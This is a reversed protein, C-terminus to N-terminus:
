GRPCCRARTRGRPCRNSCRDQRARSSSRARRARVRDADRRHLVRVVPDFMSSGVTWSVPDSRSTVGGCSGPRADGSLRLDDAGALRVREVRAARRCRTPGRGSSARDPREVVVPAALLEEAALMVDGSVVVYAQFVGPSCLTVSRESVLAAVRVRVREVHQHVVEDGGFTLRSTVGGDGPERM